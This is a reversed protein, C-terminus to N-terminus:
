PAIVEKVTEELSITKVEPFKANDLAYNTKGGFIRTFIANLLFNWVIGKALGEQSLRETEQTTVHAKIEFKHGTAKELAHLIESQSVSVSGVRLTQNASLEPHQLVAVTFKAVDDLHTSVFASKGEDYLTVTKNPLDFGLFGFKVGWDLWPGTVIATYSIKGQTALDALKDLIKVKDAVIPKDRLEPSFVDTGFESPIFRKVGAEVAADIYSAQKEFGSAGVTSIIADQGRFAQVLSAKDGYDARLVHVGQSKFSALKPDDESRSTTVTVDFAGSKVLGSVIHPGLIGTAGIVLVNKLSM